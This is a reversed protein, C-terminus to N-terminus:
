TLPSSLRPYNTALALACVKQRVNNVDYIYIYIYIYIYLGLRYAAACLFAPAKGLLRQVSSRSTM